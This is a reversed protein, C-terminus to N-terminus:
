TSNININRTTIPLQKEPTSDKKQREQWELMDEKAKQVTELADFEVGKVSLENRNKWLRWMLWSGLKEADADQPHETSVTMVRYLNTYLSDVMIGNRPAPFNSLAWVLRAFPCQFLLHNVSEEGAQCRICQSDKIIHRRKLNEAVSLCNSLCRWLFHHVKPNTDTKWALQYLADLSPQNVMQPTERDMPVNKLVWYGSKVNYQGSKSYDWCYGDQTHTGRPRLQQIRARDEATFAINLIEENWERGGYEMLDKVKQLDRTSISAENPRWIVSQIARAPKQGIWPDKWINTEAGNGIVRRTGKKLLKQAAHISRWAYSPRSGLSVELPSTKSFYRAKFVKALLSDKRTLLRWMQKGLFALNFTEIDKFGLGGQDKPISLQEWAKWHMGKRDKQSKWWFDAM